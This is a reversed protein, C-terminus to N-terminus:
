EGAHSLEKMRDVLSEAVMKGHVLKIMRPLRWDDTHSGVHDRLSAMMDLASAHPDEAMVELTDLASESKAKKRLAGWVLAAGFYAMLFAGEWQSPLYKCGLGWLLLPIVLMIIVAELIRLGVAKRTLPNGVAM